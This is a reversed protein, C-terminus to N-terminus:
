LKFKKPLPMVFMVREGNVIDYGSVFKGMLRQVPLLDTLVPLVLTYKKGGDIISHKFFYQIIGPRLDASHM